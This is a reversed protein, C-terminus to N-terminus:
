DSLGKNYGYKMKNGFSKLSFFDHTTKYDIMKLKTHVLKVNREEKKNKQNKTEIESM